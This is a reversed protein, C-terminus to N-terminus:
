RRGIVGVALRPPMPRERTEVNSFGAVNMREVVDRGIARSAEDTADKAMAQEVIVVAGGPKLVRAIENMAAAPDHWHHYSNISLVRDFHADPFPLSSADGQVVRMRGEAITAKNRRKAQAVMVDSHDVGAVHGSTRAAAKELFVGPGFGIELVNDEPGVDLLELGWDGRAPNRSAMFWGVFRGVVGRPRGFHSSFTGKAKHAAASASGSGHTATTM